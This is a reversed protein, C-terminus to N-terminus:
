DRPSPDIELRAYSPGIGSDQLLDTTFREYWRIDSLTQFGDLFSELHVRNTYTGKLESPLRSAPYERDLPLLM